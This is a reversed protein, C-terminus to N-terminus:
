GSHPKDDECACGARGYHCNIVKTKLRGPEAEVVRPVDEIVESIRRRMWPEIQSTENSPPCGTQWLIFTLLEVLAINKDRIFEPPDHYGSKNTRHWECVIELTKFLVHVQCHWADLWRNENHCFTTPTVRGSCESPGRSANGSCLKRGEKSSIQCKQDGRQADRLVIQTREGLTSGDHDYQEATFDIPENESPQWWATERCVKERIGRRNCKLRSWSNIFIIKGLSRTVSYWLLIPCSFQSVFVIWLIIGACLSLALLFADGLANSIFCTSWM